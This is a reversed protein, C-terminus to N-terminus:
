NITSDREITPIIQRPPHTLKKSAPDMRTNTMASSSASSKLVVLLRDVLIPMSLSVELTQLVTESSYSKAKM